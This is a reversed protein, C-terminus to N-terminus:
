ANLSEEKRLTVLTNRSGPVPGKVFILNEEPLIDVVEVKKLTVKQFGYHGPMKRGPFVRSPETHQGIAGPRRHSKSGHSAKGGHFGWRKIVGAFGRGKSQSSLRVLDGKKLSEISLEHGVQANEPAKECLEKVYRAGEKFGAPTLHGVLPKSCRNNKQPHCALQVSSYGEKERTKIQSVRWPEYHLATVPVAKGEENYFSTMELKFAFLGNMKIQPRSPETKEPKIKKPSVPPEQSEKEEKAEVKPAPTQSDEAKSTEPTKEKVPAKSSSKEEKSAEKEQAEPPAEPEQLKKDGAESSVKPEASPTEKTEAKSPAASEAKVEAPERSTKEKVEIKPSAKPEESVEKEAKAKAPKPSEKEEKDGKKWWKGLKKGRKLVGSFFKSDSGNEKM